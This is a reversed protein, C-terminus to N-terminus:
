RITQKDCVWKGDKVYYEGTDRDRVFEFCETAFVRRDFITIAHHWEGYETDSTIEKVGGLLYPMPEKGIVWNPYQKIELTM